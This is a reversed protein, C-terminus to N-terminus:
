KRELVVVNMIEDIKPSNYNIHQRTKWITDIEIAEINKEIIPDSKVAIIQTSASDDIKQTPM